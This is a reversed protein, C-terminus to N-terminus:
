EGGGSIIQRLTKDAKLRAQVELQLEQVLKKLWPDNLDGIVKSLNMQGTQWHNQSIETLASILDAYATGQYAQKLQTLTTQSDNTLGLRMQLLTKKSLYDYDIKRWTQLDIKASLDYAENWRSQILALDFAATLCAPNDPQLKQAEKLQEAAEALNDLAMNAKCLLLRRLTQQSKTLDKVQDMANLEDVANQYNGQYSDLLAGALMATDQQGIMERVAAAQVRDGQQLFLTVLWLKHKDDLVKPLENQATEFDGQNVDRLFRGDKVMSLHQWFAGHADIWNLENMMKQIDNNRIATNLVSFHYIYPSAAILCLGVFVGIVRRWVIRKLVKM